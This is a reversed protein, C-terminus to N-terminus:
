RRPIFEAVDLVEEEASDRPLLSRAGTGSGAAARGAGGDARDIQAIMRSHITQIDHLLREANSRLSDGMERLNGVLELGESRADSAATRADRWALWVARAREDADARLKAAAENAESVTQQASEQATAIIQGAESTAQAVAKEAEAQGTERLRAAEEQAWKVIEAAEEEAALVRNNAAREGEAIRADMRQEAQQRIREAAQEAASVISAVREAAANAGM